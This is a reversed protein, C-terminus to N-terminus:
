EQAALFRDAGVGTKECLERFAAARQARDETQFKLFFPRQEWDFSSAARGHLFMLMASFHVATTGDRQLVGRFLADVIRPPHFEEVQLLAQTLGGSIEAREM